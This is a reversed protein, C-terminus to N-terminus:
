RLVGEIGFISAMLLIPYYTLAGFGVLGLSGIIFRIINEILEKKM